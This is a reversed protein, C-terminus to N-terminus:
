SKTKYEKWYVSRQFGLRTLKQNDKASITVVPVYLKTDIITFIVNNPNANPNYAGAAFLVCYKSWKLKLEVKSNMLPM